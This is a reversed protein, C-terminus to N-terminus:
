DCLVGDNEEKIQYLIGMALVLRVPAHEYGLEISSLFQKSIGLLEAAETLTFGKAMRALRIKSKKKM